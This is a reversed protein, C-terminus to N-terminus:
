RCASDEHESLSVYAHAHRYYAALERDPVTRHVLLSPCCRPMRRHARSHDRPLAACRRKASSSSGTARTSTARSRPWASTIKSRRQKACTTRRVPHQSDTRCRREIAPVPAADRLRDTDAIISCAPARSDSRMSSAGTASARRARSRRPGGADYARPPGAGGHPRHGRRVARLVRPRSTTTTSCGAGPLTALAGTM